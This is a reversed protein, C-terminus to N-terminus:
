RAARTLARRSRSRGARELDGAAGPRAARGAGSGDGDLRSGRKGLGGAHGRGPPPPERLRGSRDGTRSRVGARRRGMGPRPTGPPDRGPRPPRARLDRRDPRDDEAGGGRPHPTEGRGRFAPDRPAFSGYGRPHGMVPSGDSSVAVHPDELFTAMVEDDMVFYAARAGGPGLGVLVEEFPRDLEDAVEALTRGSWEGTGFLTAEPGNRGMVRERLHRELEEGRTRVVEEYDAPPRAWEPFLIAIGTFSATYPYVDGTVVLGRERADAMAGLMRRAVAPDDGLVVKLHTAHVRAGSGFGQELLEDLSAEVRDADENRLHSTVVGGRAGVPRAVAILEELDARAGPDYELGTSLGFAGADLGAEVLSAMRALGSAGPAGFGVGSEQRITNHGVLYAVNVAPRAAGVEDLHAALTGAEPSGGDQGLVITTVGMALFNPFAPTELPDGHAHADIFGPTVVYGQADFHNAVRLTDARVQGVHAIRGNLFLVDAPRPPTGTGDVV